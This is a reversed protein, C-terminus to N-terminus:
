LHCYSNQRAHALEAISQNSHGYWSTSATTTTTTSTSSTTTTHDQFSHVNILIVFFYRTEQKVIIFPNDMDCQNYNFVHGQKCHHIIADMNKTYGLVLLVSLVYMSVQPQTKRM